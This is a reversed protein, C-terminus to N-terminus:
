EYENVEKELQEAREEILDSFANVLNISRVGLLELLLVEDFECLKEKLEELTM